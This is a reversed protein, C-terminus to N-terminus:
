LSRHCFQHWTQSNSACVWMWSAHWLQMSCPGMHSRVWWPMPQVLMHWSADSALCISSNSLHWWVVMGSWTRWHWASVGITKTMLHVVSCVPHPHSVVPWYMHMQACTLLSGGLAKVHFAVLSDLAFSTHMATAKAGSCIAKDFIIPDPCPVLWQMYAFLNVQMSMHFQGCIAAGLQGFVTKLGVQLVAGFDVSELFNSHLSCVDHGWSRHSTLKDALENGYEGLTGQVKVFDLMIGKAKTMCWLVLLLNHLLSPWHLGIAMSDLLALFPLVVHVVIALDTNVCM